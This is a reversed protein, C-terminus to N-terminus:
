FPLDDEESDQNIGKEPTGSSVPEQTVGSSDSDYSPIDMAQVKKKLFKKVKLFFMKWDDTDYEKRDAKPVEPMGNLTKKGDWYFNEVKEGDQKMSVGTLRKGEEPEFDFVNISIEQSLDANPIKKAFDSFYKSDTPFSLQAKDEGNQFKIIVREGYKSEEFNITTINGSLNKHLIEWKTGKTGDKLEYDRKVAGEVGEESNEVMNGGVVSLYLVNGKEVKSTMSGM